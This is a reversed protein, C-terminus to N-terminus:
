PHGAPPGDGGAAGAGRGRAAGGARVTRRAPARARGCLRAGAPDPQPDGCGAPLLARLATWEAGTRRAPDAPWTALVAAVITRRHVALRLTRAAYEEAARCVRDSVYVGEALVAARTWGLRRLAMWGKSPLKEGRGDVGAALVDLSGEDWRCAVLARTLERCLSALFSVREWLLRQGVQEGSGEVVGGFATCTATAM